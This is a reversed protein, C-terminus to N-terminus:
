KNNFYECFAELEAANTCDQLAEGYERAQKVTKVHMQIKEGITRPASDHGLFKDFILSAFRRSLGNEILAEEWQERTYFHTFSRGKVNFEIRSHNASATLFDQIKM